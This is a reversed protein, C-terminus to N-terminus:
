NKRVLKSLARFAGQTSNMCAVIIHWWYYFQAMRLGYEPLLITRYEEDLDGLMGDRSRPPILLGLFLAVRPPNNSVSVAHSRSRIKPSNRVSDDLESTEDEAFDLLDEDEFEESTMEELIGESREDSLEALFAAAAAPDMEEVIGAVQESDLEETLSQQMKPEIEELAEAAVDEELSTFIAQREAPALDELIDALDSPHMWALKEQEIKLRVRRSLVRDILDKM